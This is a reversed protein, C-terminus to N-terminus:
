EENILNFFDPHWVISLSSFYKQYIKKLRNINALIYEELEDVGYNIINKLSTKGELCNFIFKETLGDRIRWVFDNDNDSLALGSQIELESIVYGLYNMTKLKEFLNEEIM